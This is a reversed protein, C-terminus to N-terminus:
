AKAAAAAAATRKAAVTAISDQKSFVALMELEANFAGEWTPFDDRDFDSIGFEELKTTQQALVDNAAFAKQAANRAHIILDALTVSTGNLTNKM